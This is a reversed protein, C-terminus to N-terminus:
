FTYLLLHSSFIVYLPSRRNGSTSLISHVIEKSMIISRSPDTTVDAGTNSRVRAMKIWKIKQSGVDWLDSKINDNQWEQGELNYNESLNEETFNETYKKRGGSGKM